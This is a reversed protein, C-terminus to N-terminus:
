VQLKAKTSQLAAFWARSDLFRVHKRVVKRSDRQPKPMRLMTWLRAPLQSAHGPCLWTYITLAAKLLPIDEELREILHKWHVENGSSYLVNFIDTWDCHDRQLIYLKCWIFEEIPIVKLEERRILACRANEFWMEDVRARRNAMSWIIDVIVGSRVSRYIWRRDYARTKYYDSFGAKKLAAIAAFRATPMVYFDIDKTDRWRGTFTALAFGGGLLFPIHAERMAQVARQYTRWETKSIADAWRFKSGGNVDKSSGSNPTEGRSLAGFEVSIRPRGRSLNRARNGIRASSKTKVTSLREAM